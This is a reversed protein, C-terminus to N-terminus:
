EGLYKPINYFNGDNNIFEAVEGYVSSELLLRRIVKHNIEILKSNGIIDIVLIGGNEILERILNSYYPHTPYTGIKEALDKIKMNKTNKTLFINKLMRWGIFDHKNM